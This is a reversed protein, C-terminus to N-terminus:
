FMIQKVLLHAKCLIQLYAEKWLLKKKEEVSGLSDLLESFSEIKEEKSNLKKTASNKAKTM